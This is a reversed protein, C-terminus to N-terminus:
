YVCVLMNSVFASRLTTPVHARASADCHGKTFFNLTMGIHNDSLVVAQYIGWMCIQFGMAVSCMSQPM